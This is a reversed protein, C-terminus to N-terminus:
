AKDARSKGERHRELFDRIASTDAERMLKGVFQMQRRRAEHSAMARAELLAEKIDPPLPAKRLSERGLAALEEGLAQLATADRKKQSRSPGDFDDYKPM